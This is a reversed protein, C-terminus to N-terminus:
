ASCCRSPTLTSRRSADELTLAGAAVTMCAGILAVGARDISLGPVKGIAIAIALYSKIFTALAAIKRTKDDAVQNAPLLEAGIRRNSYHWCM